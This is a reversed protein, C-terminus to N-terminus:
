KEYNGRKNLVDIAVFMAMSGFVLSAIKAQDIFSNVIGHFFFTMFGLLAALAMYKLLPSTSKYYVRIGYAITTFLLVLFSIFGPLGTESLYTLPESHANGRDGAMTSIHTLEYVSQYPGYVFQYTGPGFGTIPRDNFMRIACKWRNIRELNSADSNINSVSMLHEKIEGRNSVNDNELAKQYLTDQFIIFSAVLIGMVVVFYIFRLKLKVFVFMCLSVLLSIWAARSFSLIESVLLFGFLLWFVNVIKKSFNLEKGKIAIVFVFPLIYAIAAGYITHDAYFPKSVEYVTRPNFSYLSHHYHTVIIPIILGLTYLLFFKVLNKSNTLFQTTLLFFVLLYILRIIVRKISYMIMESQLASIFFWIFDIFLLITIPHYIIKKYFFPKYVGICVSALALLAVIIESPASISAEGVLGLNVSLPITFIGISFLLEKNFFLLYLVVGSIGVLLFSQYILPKNYSIGFAMFVIFAISVIVVFYISSIFKNIL